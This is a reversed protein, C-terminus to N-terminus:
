SITKQRRRHLKENNEGTKMGPKRDRSLLKCHAYIVHKHDAPIFNLKSIVRDQSSEIATEHFEFVATCDLCVIHDHHGARALEYFPQRGADTFSERLVGAELFLPINRYVTAAGIHSHATQFKKVLQGISFHTRFAFMANLILDRSASHNLDKKEIFNRLRVILAAHGKGAARPFESPLSRGCPLSRKPRATAGAAKKIKELPGLAM